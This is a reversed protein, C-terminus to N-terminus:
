DLSAVSCYAIMYVLRRHRGVGARRRLRRLHVLQRRLRRVSRRDGHLHLVALRHLQPCTSGDGCVVGCADTFRRGGVEGECGICTRNRGRCLGCADYYPCSPPPPPPPETVCQCPNAPDLTFGAACVATPCPECYCGTPSLVDTGTCTLDAFVDACNLCSCGDDAVIQDTDCVVLCDICPSCLDSPGALHQGDPCQKPVCLVCPDCEPNASAPTAKTHNATCVVTCNTCGCVGDFETGAGCVPQPCRKCACPDGVDQYEPAVCTPTPCPECPECTSASNRRTGAPCTVLYPCPM